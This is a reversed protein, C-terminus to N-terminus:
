NAPIELQDKIDDYSLVIYSFDRQEKSLFLFPNAQYFEQAEEISAEQANILPKKDIKIFDIDRSTELMWALADM